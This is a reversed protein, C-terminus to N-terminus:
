VHARGIEVLAHARGEREHLAGELAGAPGAFVLHKLRTVM